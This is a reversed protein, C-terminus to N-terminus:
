KDPKQPVDPTGRPNPSTKPADKIIAPSPQNQLEDANTVVLPPRSSFSTDNIVLDLLEKTSGLVTVSVAPNNTNGWAVVYVPLMVFSSIDTTPQVHLHEVSHAHKKELAPVNISIASLWQKSLEYAGAENILSKPQLVSLEHVMETSFADHGNEIRSITWLRRSEDVGFSFNTTYIIGGFGFRPAGVFKRVINTAEIPHPTPLNLQLSAYNAEGLILQIVAAKYAVSAILNTM